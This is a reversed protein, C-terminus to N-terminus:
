RKGMLYGGYVHDFAESTIQRPKSVDKRCVLFCVGIKEIFCKRKNTWITIDYKNYPTFWLM